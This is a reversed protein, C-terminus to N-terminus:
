NFLNESCLPIMKTTFHPSLFYDNLFMWLTNSSQIVGHLGKRKLVFLLNQIPVSMSLCLCIQTVGLDRQGVGLDLNKEYCWTELLVDSRSQSISFVIIVVLM